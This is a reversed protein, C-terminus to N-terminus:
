LDYDEPVYLQIFENISKLQSSVFNILRLKQFYDDIPEESRVSLDESLEGLTAILTRRYDVFGSALTHNFLLDISDNKDLNKCM